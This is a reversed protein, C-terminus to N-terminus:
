KSFFRLLILALVLTKLAFRVFLHLIASASALYKSLGINKVTEYLGTKILFQCKVVNKNEETDSVEVVVIFLANVSRANVPTDVRAILEVIPTACNRQSRFRQACNGM